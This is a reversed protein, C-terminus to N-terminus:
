SGRDRAHVVKAGVGEAPGEVRAIVGPSKALREAPVGEATGNRRAPPSCPGLAPPVAGPGAHTVRPPRKRVTKQLRSLISGIFRWGWVSRHHGHYACVLAVGDAVLPDLAEDRQDRRLLQEVLQRKVVLADLYQQVATVCGVGHEVSVVVPQHHDDARAADVVDLGSALVRLAEAALGLPEGLVEQDHHAHVELLWPRRDAPLTQDVIRM